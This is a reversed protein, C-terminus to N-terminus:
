WDYPDRRLSWITNKVMAWTGLMELLGKGSAARATIIKALSNADAVDDKRLRIRMIQTGETSFVDALKGLRDPVSVKIEMNGLWAEIQKPYVSFQGIGMEDLMKLADAKEMHDSTELMGIKEHTSSCQSPHYGYRLIDVSRALSVPLEQRISRLRTHPVVREGMQPAFRVCASQIINM